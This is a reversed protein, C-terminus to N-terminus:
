KQQKKPFKKFKGSSPVQSQSTPGLRRFVSKQPYSHVGWYQRRGQPKFKSDGSGSFRKMSMSQIGKLAKIGDAAAKARAGFSEGFLHPGREPFHTEALPKLDSNLHKMICKRREVSFHAAANGLLTLSSKVASKLTDSDIQAKKDIQEQLFALPGMADMTFQQLKSLFRDYSKAAKPVLCVISEDLKPPHAPDCSPLPFKSAVAKRKDNKLPKDVVTELFKMTEKRPIFKRKARPQDDESESDSSSDSDSLLDRRESESLYPNVEEETEDSDTPPQGRPRKSGAHYATPPPPYPYPVWPPWPWQPQCAAASIVGQAANSMSLTAPNGIFHRAANGNFHRAASGDFCQAANGMYSLAANGHFVQTANGQYQDPATSGAYVLAASSQHATGEHPVHEQGRPFGSSDGRGAPNDRGPSGLQQGVDGSREGQQEQFGTGSRNGAAIAELSALLSPVLARSLGEIAEPCATIQSVLASPNDEEQQQSEDM